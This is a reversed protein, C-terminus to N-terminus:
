SAVLVSGQATACLVETGDDDVTSIDCRCVASVDHQQLLEDRVDVELTASGGGFAVVRAGVLGSFPQAALVQRAFALDPTTTM